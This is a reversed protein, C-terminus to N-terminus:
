RQRGSTSIVRLSVGKRRLEAAASRRQQVWILEEPGLPRGRRLEDELRTELMADSLGTRAETLSGTEVKKVHLVELYDEDALIGSSIRGVTLLREDAGDGLVKIAAMEGLDTGWLGAMDLAEDKRADDSPNPSAAIRDSIPPLLLDYSNRELLRTDAVVESKDLVLCIDGYYRIGAGNLEAAAFYVSKYSPEPGSTTPLPLARDVMKRRSLGGTSGIRISGLEYGNKYGSKCFASIHASAINIVARVGARPDPTSGHPGIGLVARVVGQANAARYASAHVPLTGSIKSNLRALWNTVLSM